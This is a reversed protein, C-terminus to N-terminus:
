EGRMAMVSHKRGYSFYIVFGLLLWVVLRLWNEAPLSFMLLLCSGIGLIPTLPVFRRM